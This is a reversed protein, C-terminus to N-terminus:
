PASVRVRVGQGQLNIHTDVSDTDTEIVTLYNSNASTVYVKGTPTGSTVSITTPTGYACTLVSGDPCTPTAVPNPQGAANLATAAPITATVVGSSLNVVSISGSNPDSARGMNAVYARSGDSLVSVAQPNIGVPVTAIVTGFGAGDVPNNPDCSPNSAQAVANCLPISIISLSGPTNKDGQNLVVLENTAAVLDAWVPNPGVNITPHANDLANNTVNIVSVTGSGQNTIFARRLDATQVGYVPNVGVPINASVSLSSGEIAAANGLGTRTGASLAYARPTGDTGVVFTPNPAVTIEQALAPATGATLIAVASRGVEPVLIRGTSGATTNSTLTFASVTPASAGAPLTTQQIM